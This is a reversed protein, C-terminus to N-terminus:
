PTEERQNQRTEVRVRGNVAHIDAAPAPSLARAYGALDYGAAALGAQAVPRHTALLKRASMHATACDVTEVSVLRGASFNMVVLEGREPEVAIQEDAGAALGAIQLKTDGQDSWFWPVAAYPAPRGTLRKSIVRAHDTAAQVSELRVRRGSVPDPFNCCDGLASIDPDSTLLLHDVDVGDSAALGAEAALESNPAVGTAILVLDGELETGDALMVGAVRGAGDDLLASVFRGLLVKTGRDRHRALVHRSMTDSVARAMLRPAGEIVTAAIGHDAAVAAFELGIFGGGVIVIHRAGALRSRLMEADQLGRLSLVNALGLGTIPPHANPSGTALVLHDYGIAEGSATLVHRADRDICSVRAGLHLAIANKDFFDRPRFHLREVNGDKLYGKSLPPRQYPLVPEDGILVIEGAFGDARLSAAMQFGGHGGGVIVVRGPVVHGSTM